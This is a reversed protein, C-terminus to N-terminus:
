MVLSSKEKLLISQWTNEYSHWPPKQGYPLDGKFDLPLGAIDFSDLFSEPKKEYQYLFEFDVVKLEKESTVILNNPVFEVLAFGEEYFFKMISIIDKAFHMLLENKERENQKALINQYFPIMLYYEGSEILPPIAPHKEGLKSYVFKERELYRERGVKFTKKVVLQGQYEILEVKSRAHDNNMLALVKQHTRYAERRREVEKRVEQTSDPCIAKLYEWAEIEDDSSHMCNVRRTRLIRNNVEDRVQYKFLVNGDTIYPYQISIEKPVPAPHYDYAAIVVGPRGGSVPFPGRGWEGGRIKLSSSQKQSENLTIVKIVDFADRQKEFCEKIFDLKNNNVAWERVIFVLLEGDDVTYPNPQLLSKLWESNEALKRLTDLQPTWGHHDLLDHLDSLNPTIQMHVRQGLETLIEAYPHDSNGRGNEQDKSLPLGSKEAKHYVVHYALTFFHHERSPIYYRHKFLVRDRLVSKALHPPYYPLGNYSSRATVSFIDCPRTEPSRVFLDNIKSFDEDDVLLDIDENAPWEPLDDFWRLIVYRVERQNLADFFAEVGMEPDLYRRVKQPVPDIYRRLTRSQKLFNLVSDPLGRKIRRFPYLVIDLALPKLKEGFYYIGSNLVQLMLYQIGDDQIMERVRVILRKFRMFLM